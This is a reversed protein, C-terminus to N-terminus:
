QKESIISFSDLMERDIRFSEMFQVLQTTSVPRSFYYGQQLYCHHRCLFEMHKRTEVGEAIVGLGLNDGLAVNIIASETIELMLRGVPM